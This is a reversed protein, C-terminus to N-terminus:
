PALRYFRWSDHEIALMEVQGFGAKTAYARVTDPRIVAGTGASSEDLMGVALCHLVSWGYHSRELEDGPATFREAVREDSIVVSGDKSLMKRAARLAEVPHNMDHLAEFITVLDYRGELEPASADRVTPRVRGTLGAAAVTRRADEISEMDADIADVIVEPYARAIAVSSWGAGCALDAVRAPPRSRMRVDVEPICALWGALQNVFGPRNVAAIGARTDDGYAEYPVGGGTRYADLLADMCGLVGIALTALPALYSLSDEEVFVARHSVPLGYRRAGAAAGADDVSLFGAVAQQELWERVYREATGTRGALEGPTSDGGEVLARYFGLRNGVHVSALELTGVTAANLREVLADTGRGMPMEATSM